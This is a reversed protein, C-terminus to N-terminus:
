QATHTLFYDVITEYASAKLHLGDVEAVDAGLNGSDDAMISYIDLFYTGHKQALEQVHQNFAVIQDNNYRSDSAEKGSTVPPISCLYVTADPNQEMLATLFADYMEAMNDASIWAIGNSGLTVYIKAPAKQRVAELVTVDGADTSIYPNEMIQDLNVGIDAVVRDNDVYGYLGMAVTLSDGIFVADNFYSEDVADTRVPQSGDGSGGSATGSSAGSEAPLSDTLSSDTLSSTESSFLGSSSDWVESSTVGASVPNGRMLLFAALAAVTLILLIVIVPVAASVRPKSSNQMSM